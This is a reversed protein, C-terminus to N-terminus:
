KSGRAGEWCEPKLEFTVAKCPGKVYKVLERDGAWDVNGVASKQCHIERHEQNTLVNAM